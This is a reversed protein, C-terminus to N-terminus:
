RAYCYLCGHRCTGYRGVDVSEHCRCAPRQARDRRIRMARGFLASLSAADICRAPEIGLPLLDADEACARPSFGHAGAIEALDRLLRRAEADSGGARSFVWGRDELPCLARSCKEYWDLLSLTVGDVRARLRRALTAFQRRHFDGDTRNSLVVPDYRWNVRAPGLRGALDLVAGIREELPPLGPELPPGYPTLTVHFVYGIGRRDLEALHALIPRPDRTWFVIADVDAPDLSLVRRQSPNRPNHIEIRGARICDMFWDSFFAPIDTRRSASIIVDSLVKAANGKGAFGNKEGRGRLRPRGAWRVVCCISFGSFVIPVPGTKKPPKQALARSRAGTNIHLFDFLIILSILLNYSPAPATKGKCGVVPISNDALQNTIQSLHFNREFSPFNRL